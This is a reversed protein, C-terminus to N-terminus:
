IKFVHHLKTFLQETARQAALTLSVLYNGTDDGEFGVSLGRFILPVLQRLTMLNM